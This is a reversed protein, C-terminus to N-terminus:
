DAPNFIQTEQHRLDVIRATVLIVLSRKDSFTAKRRFLNGIIPINGLIPIYSKMKGEDLSKFGGLMVTGGNPVTVSTFSQQLKIEPIGIPVQFAVNTFSGLSINITSIVGGILTALTPRVDMTVYKKDHSIVPEVDLIVGEQFTQVVPDAVEIIAFGTGGSVLEYDAIYARQTIVSVYVRQGNAATIIPATLTRVDAREQVARLITNIQFPELWTQQVTLGGVGGGANLAGNQRFSGTFSDIIHQVRGAWRDQGMILTVDRTPSGQKVFGLDQGGTRADNVVNGFPVGYNNVVGLARSDIGIDELFNDDIEIFRAEIVVFLDSDKRLNELVTEIRSHMDLTGTVLLNGTHYEMTNVEGWEDDGGTSERILDQLQDPDLESGEEESEAIFSIAEGSDQDNPGRLILEPGTFDRIKNLIDSVNYIRFTTDGAVPSDAPTIYLVNDRFTYALGARDLLLNLAERASLGQVELSVNTEDLGVDPHVGINIGLLDRIQNVVEGLPEDDFSFDVKQDNLVAKIRTIEESEEFTDFQLDKIRQRARHWDEEGPFVFVNDYPIGATKFAQDLLERNSLRDEILKQRRQKLLQDHADARWFQAIRNGPDLELIRDCAEIAKRYQRNAILAHSKRLLIQVRDRRIRETRELEQLAADEAAALESTRREDDKRARERRVTELFNRASRASSADFDPMRDIANVALATLREAEEVDGADFAARARELNNSIQARQQDDRVREKRRIDDSVAGITGTREGTFLLAENLRSRAGELSPDLDLARRYHEAAKEYELREFFGDGVEALVRAEQRRISLQERLDDLVAETGTARARPAPSDELAVEPEDDLEPLEPEDSPAAAEVSEDATERDQGGTLSMQRQAKLRRDRISDSSGCGVALFIVALLSLGLATGREARLKQTRM